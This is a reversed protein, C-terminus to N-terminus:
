DSARGTGSDAGNDPLEGFGSEILSVLRDVAEEEDPGDASIEVSTGPGLGLSLLMVISKANVSEGGVQSIDRIKISSSFKKAETVFESAPRAHLGSPNIITVTRSTM